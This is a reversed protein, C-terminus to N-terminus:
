PIIITMSEYHPEYIITTQTLTQNYSIEIKIILQTVHNYTVKLEINQIGTITQAFLAKAQDAKIVGSVTTLDGTVNTEYTSFYDKKLGVIPMRSQLYDSQSYDQWQVTSNNQLTGLQQNYFFYVTETEQYPSADQQYTNMTRVKHETYSKFEPEREIRQEIWEANLIDSGSSQVISFTFGYISDTKYNKVLNDIKGIEKDYGEM